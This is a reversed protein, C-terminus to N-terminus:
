AAVRRQMKRGLVAPLFHPEGAMQDLRAAIAVSPVRRGSRLDGAYGSSVGLERAFQEPKLGLQNRLAEIEM